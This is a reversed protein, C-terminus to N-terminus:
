IMAAIHSSEYGQTFGPYRRALKDYRTFMRRYQNVKSIFCEVLEAPATDGTYFGTRRREASFEDGDYEIVYDSELGDILADVQTIDHTGGGTLIFRLPNGLADVSIHVKTTFGGKSKGQAQTNRRKKHAAGVAYHVKQM